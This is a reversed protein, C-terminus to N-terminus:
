RVGPGGSVPVVRKCSRPISSRILAVSATVSMTTGVAETPGTFGSGATAAMGWAGYPAEVSPSGASIAAFM